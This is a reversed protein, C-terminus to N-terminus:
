LNLTKDKAVENHSLLEDEAVKNSLELDEISKDHENKM